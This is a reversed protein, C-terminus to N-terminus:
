IYPMCPSYTYYIYRHLRAIAAAHTQLVCMRVSYEEWEKTFQHKDFMMAHNWWPLDITKPHSLFEQVLHYPLVAFM